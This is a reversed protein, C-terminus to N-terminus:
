KTAADVGSSPTGLGWHSNGYWTGFMSYVGDLQSVQMRKIIGQVSERSVQKGSQWRFLPLGAEAGQGFRQPKWARLMELAEVV